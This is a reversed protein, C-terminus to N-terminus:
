DQEGTIDGNVWFDDYEIGYKSCHLEFIYNFWDSTIASLTRGRNPYFGDVVSEPEEGPNLFVEDVHPYDEINPCRDMDAQIMYPETIMQVRYFFRFYTNTEPKKNGWAQQRWFKWNYADDEISAVWDLEACYAANNAEVQIAEVDWDVAGSVEIDGNGRGCEIIYKKNALFVEWIDGAHILGTSLPWICYGVDVFGTGSMTAEYERNANTGRRKAEEIAEGTDDTMLRYLMNGNSDDTRVTSLDVRTTSMGRCIVKLFDLARDEEDEYKVKKIMKWWAYEVDSLPMSVIRAYKGVDPLGRDEMANLIEAVENCEDRSDMLFQIIKANGVWFDHYWKLTEIECKDSDVAKYHHIGYELILDIIEKDEITVTQEVTGYITDTHNVVCYKSGNVTPHAYMIVHILNLQMEM